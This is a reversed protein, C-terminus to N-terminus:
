LDKIEKNCAILKLIKKKRKQEIKNQGTRYKMYFTPKLLYLFVCVYM